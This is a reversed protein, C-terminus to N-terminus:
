KYKKLVKNKKIKDELPKTINKDYIVIQEHLARTLAVYLLHM